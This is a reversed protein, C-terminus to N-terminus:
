SSEIHQGQLIPLEDDAALKLEGGNPRIRTAQAKEASLTYRQALDGRHVFQNDKAALEVIQGSAVPALMLICARVAGDQTWPIGMHPQWLLWAANAGIVAVAFTALM